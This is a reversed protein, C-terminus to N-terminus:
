GVRSRRKKITILLANLEQLCSHSAEMMRGVREELVALRAELERDTEYQQERLQRFAAVQHRTEIAQQEMRAMSSHQEALWGHHLHRAQVSEAASATEFLFSLSEKIRPESSLAKGSWRELMMQLEAWKPTGTRKSEFVQEVAQALRKRPMPPPTGAPTETEELLPMLDKLFAATAEFQLSEEGPNQKEPSPGLLEHLAKRSGRKPPGSQVFSLFHRESERNM